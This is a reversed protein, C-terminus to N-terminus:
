HSDAVVDDVDGHGKSHPTIWPNTFQILGIRTVNLKHVRGDARLSSVSRYDQLTLACQKKINNNEQIINIMSLLYM